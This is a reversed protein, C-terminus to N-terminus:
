ELFPFLLTLGRSLFLELFHSLLFFAMPPSINKREFFYCSFSCRLLPAVYRLTVASGVSIYQVSTFFLTMSIVGALGRYILFNMKKGWFSINKVKLYLTTFALSGISRFFVLQFSSYYNLEKIVANMLAFFFTSLLM